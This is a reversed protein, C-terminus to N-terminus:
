IRKGAAVHSAYPDTKGIEQEVTLASQAVDSLQGAADRGLHDAKPKAEAATESVEKKMGVAPAPKGSDDLSFQANFDV